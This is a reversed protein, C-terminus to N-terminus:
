WIMGGLVATKIDPPHHKVMPNLPVTGTLSVWSFSRTSGRHIPQNSHAPAPSPGQSVRELINGLREEDTMSSKADGAAMSVLRGPCSSAM